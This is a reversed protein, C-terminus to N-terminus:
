QIYDEVVGMILSKSYNKAAIAKLLTRLANINQGNKGIIKGVDAQNADITLLITREETKEKIKIEEPFDTLPKIMELALESMTKM